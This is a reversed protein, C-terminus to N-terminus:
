NFENDEKIKMSNQEQLDIYRLFDKITRYGFAVKFGYCVRNIYKKSCESCYMRKGTNKDIECKPCFEVRSSIKFSM